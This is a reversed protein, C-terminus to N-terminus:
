RLYMKSRFQYPFENNGENEKVIDLMAKKSISLNNLLWIFHTVSDPSQSIGELAFTDKEEQSLGTLMVDYPINDIIGQFFNLLIENRTSFARKSQEKKSQVVKLEQRM